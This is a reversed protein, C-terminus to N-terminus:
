LVFYVMCFTNFLGFCMFLLYKRHVIECTVGDVNSDSKVLHCRKLGRSSRYYSKAGKAVGTLAELFDSYGGPLSTPYNPLWLPEVRKDITPKENPKTDNCKSWDKKPAVVRKTDDAKSEILSSENNGGKQETDKSVLYILAFTIVVMLYIKASAANKRGKVGYKGSEQYNNVEEDSNSAGEEKPHKGAVRNRMVGINNDIMEFRPVNM